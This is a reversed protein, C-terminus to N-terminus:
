AKLKRSRGWIVFAALIMIFINFGIDKGENRLIHFTIAALMLFIIGISTYLTLNPKLQLLAPFVIGIGAMLDIFGTFLVLNPNEKVWPFPLQDPTFIKMFGTWVFLVALLGQATWLFINLTKSKKQM